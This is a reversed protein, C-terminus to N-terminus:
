STLLAALVFLAIAGLTIRVAGWKDRALTVLDATGAMFLVLTVNAPARAIAIVFVIVSQAAAYVRLDFRQRIHAGFRYVAAHVLLLALWAVALPLAPRRAPVPMSLASLTNLVALAAVIAALAHEFRLRAMTLLSPSAVPRVVNTRHAPFRSQAHDP